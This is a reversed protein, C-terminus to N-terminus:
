GLGLTARVGVAGALGLYIAWIAGAGGFAVLSAAFALGSMLQRRRRATRAARGEWEWWPDRRRSRSLSPM